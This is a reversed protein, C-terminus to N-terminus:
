QNKKEKEKIKRKKWEKKEKRKENRKKKKYLVSFLKQVSMVSAPAVQLQIWADESFNTAIKNHLEKSGFGGLLTTMHDM